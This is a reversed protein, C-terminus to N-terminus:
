ELINDLRKVVSGMQGLLKKQEDLVDSQRNAVGSAPFPAVEALTRELLTLTQRIAWVTNVHPADITAGIHRVLCLMATRFESIGEKVVKAQADSLQTMYDNFPSHSHSAVMMQEVKGVLDDVARLTELFRSVSQPSAGGNANSNQYEVM